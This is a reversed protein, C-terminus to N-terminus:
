VILTTCDLLGVDPPTSAAAIIGGTTATTQRSTTSVTSHRLSASLRSMASCAWVFACCGTVATAGAALASAASAGRGKEGDRGGGGGGELLGSGVVGASGARRGDNGSRKRLPSAARSLPLERPLPRLRTSGTNGCVCRRTSKLEFSMSPGRRGRGLEACCRPGGGAGGGVCGNGGVGVDAATAAPPTAIGIGVGVGTRTKTGTFFSRTLGIPFALGLTRGSGGSGCGFAGGGATRGM